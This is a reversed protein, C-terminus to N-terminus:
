TSTFYYLGASLGGLVVFVVVFVLPKVLRKM